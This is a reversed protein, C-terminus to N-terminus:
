IKDYCASVLRDCNSTIRILESSPRVTFLIAMIVLLLKDSIRHNRIITTIVVKEVHVYNVHERFQEHFHYM